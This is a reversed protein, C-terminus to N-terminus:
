DNQQVFETRLHRDADGRPTREHLEIAVSDGTPSQTFTLAQVNGALVRYPGTTVPAAAAFTSAADCYARVEQSPADRVIYIMAQWLPRGSTADVTFAGTCSPRASVVGIATGGGYIQFRGVTTERLDRAMRDMALRADQQVALRESTSRAMKLFPIFVQYIGATVVAFIAMAAVLDIM